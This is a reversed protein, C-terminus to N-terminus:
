VLSKQKAPPQIMLVIGQLLFGTLFGWTLNTTLLSVVGVCVAIVLLPPRRFIDRLYAAHQIGVYALLVGLVAAPILKLVSVAARGFLALLICVVGIVYSSRPNRAGFQYHATIGGSGHCLPPAQIM